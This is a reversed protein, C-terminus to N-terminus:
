RRDKKSCTEMMPQCSQDTSLHPQLQRSFRGNKLTYRVEIFVTERQLKIKTNREYMDYICTCTGQFPDSFTDMKYVAMVM